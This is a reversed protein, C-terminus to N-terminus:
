LGMDCGTRHGGNSNRRDPAPSSEGQRTRGLWRKVTMATIAEEM